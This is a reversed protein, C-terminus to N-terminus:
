GGEEIVVFATARDPRRRAQTSVLSRAVGADVGKDGEPTWRNATAKQPPICQYIYIYSGYRPPQWGTAAVQWGQLHPM